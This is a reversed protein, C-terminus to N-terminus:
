VLRWGVQTLWTPDVGLSSLFLGGPYKTVEPLGPVALTLGLPRIENIVLAEWCWRPHLRPPRCAIYTMFNNPCSCPLPACPIKTQMLNMYVGGEACRMPSIYTIWRLVWTMENADALFGSFLSFILLLTTTAILTRGPSGLICTLALM